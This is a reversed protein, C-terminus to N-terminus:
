SIRYATFQWGYTLSMTSFADFYVTTNSAEIVIFNLISLSNDGSQRVVYARDVGSIRLRNQTQTNASSGAQPAYVSTLIVWTGSDFTHSYLNVISNGITKTGSENIYSLSGKAITGNAM